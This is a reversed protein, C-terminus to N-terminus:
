QRNEPQEESDRRSQRSDQYKSDLTGVPLHKVRQRLDDLEQQMAMAMTKDTSVFEASVQGNRIKLM